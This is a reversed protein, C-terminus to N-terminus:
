SIGSHSVTDFFGAFNNQIIKLFMGSEIGLLQVRLGSMDELVTKDKQVGLVIEKTVNVSLNVKIVM